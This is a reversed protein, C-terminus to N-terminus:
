HFNSGISRLTNHTETFWSENKDNRTQTSNRRTSMLAWIVVGAIIAGILWFVLKKNRM